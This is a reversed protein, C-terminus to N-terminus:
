PCSKDEKRIMRVIYEYIHLFIEGQRDLTDIRSEICACKCLTCPLLKENMLYIAVSTYMFTSPINELMKLKVYIFDISVIFPYDQLPHEEVNINTIDEDIDNDTESTDKQIFVHFIIYLM